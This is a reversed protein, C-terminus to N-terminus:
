ALLASLALANQTAAGRATNDFICWVRSESKAARLRAAYHALQDPQYNSWYVRPAGHLRFYSLGTWGGPEAGSPVIAPDAAVRAIRHGILVEDAAPAFWTAHRPEFAVDGSHRARLAAFFAEAIAEGFVFRPPLQILLPGLRDGLGSAQELFADLAADANVLRLEHTIARPVKVAFSFDAPTSAAWRRYTARRHPRYFSSNIEVANLRRAYRELHSGAGPFLAAHEKRISWGATGIRPVGTGASARVPASM